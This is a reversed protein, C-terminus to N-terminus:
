ASSALAARRIFPPLPSAQASEPSSCFALLPAPGGKFFRRISLSLLFHFCGLPAVGKMKRKVIKQSKSELTEPLRPRSAWWSISSCLKGDLLGCTLRQSSLKSSRVAAFDQSMRASFLFVGKPFSGQYGFGFFSQYHLVPDALSIEVEARHCLKFGHRQFGLRSVL